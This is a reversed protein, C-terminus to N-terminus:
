AATLQGQANVTFTAVSSASGYSAASVATNSIAITGTTTITGGSLGTGATISTVTGSGFTPTAWTGDGRLYTSSSPTGTIPNNAPNTVSSLVTGGNALLTGTFSGTGNVTLLYGPSTTKIGVNGAATIRM